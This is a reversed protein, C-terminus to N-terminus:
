VIYFLFGALQKLITSVMKSAIHTTSSVNATSYRNKQSSISILAMLWGNGLLLSLYMQSAISAVKM